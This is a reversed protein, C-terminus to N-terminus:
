KDSSIEKQSTIFYAHEIPLGFFVSDRVEVKKHKCNIARHVTGLAPNDEDILVIKSLKILEEIKLVEKVRKAM